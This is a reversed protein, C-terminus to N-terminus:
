VSCRAWCSVGDQLVLGALVLAQYALLILQKSKNMGISKGRSPIFHILLICLRNWTLAKQVDVNWALGAIYVAYAVCWYGLGSVMGIVREDDINMGWSIELVRKPVLAFTLSMLTVLVSNVKNVAPAYEQNSLNVYAVMSSQLLIVLQLVLGFGITEQENGLLSRVIEVLLGLSQCWSAAGLTTQVSCNKFFSCVGLIGMQILVLGLRRMILEAIPAVSIGYGKCASAPNLWAVAGQLLSVATAVKAVSASEVLAGGRIELPKNLSLVSPNPRHAVFAKQRATSASICSPALLLLSFLAFLNRRM